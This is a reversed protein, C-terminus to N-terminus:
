QREGFPPQFRDRVPKLSFPLSKESKYRAQVVGRKNRGLKTRFAKRFIGHRNAKAVGLRRWGGSWRYSLVVNGATSKPTRGWVLIAKKNRFAVSPFRFAKLIKKPEDQELTPGRFYLGSEVTESYPLGEPRPWDRLSLWFFNSVGAKWARYMAESTWRALRKMPVGGPDPANSDWSFETVWFPIAKKSSSIKGAAKAANLLKRMKPLDGLSVDDVGASEHTPGGTTYPNNSWIDFRARGSCGPRSVPKKRGKMCMLRRAFDLPGLGGPRELPALGGGVVLNTSNVGKVAGAFRNLLERYLSPSVKRGEIFHPKFFLHLNPENWPMWYRVRPLDEFTGSYRRAAAKAFQAFAAPDPDCIGPISDRCREAWPPATYLMVLPTLGAGTAMLIQSDVNEWDYNPDSPDTPDWNAPRVPPAVSSWYAIVRVYSAGAAKVREYGLQRQTIV